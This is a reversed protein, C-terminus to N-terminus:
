KRRGLQQVLSRGLTRPTFKPRLRTTPIPRRKRRSPPFTRHLPNSIPTQRHIRPHGIEMSSPPSPYRPIRGALRNIRQPEIILMNDASSNSPHLSLHAHSIHSLHVPILRSCPLFPSFLVLFLSSVHSRKKKKALFMMALAALILGAVFAGVADQGTLTALCGVDQNTGAHFPGSSWSAGTSDFITTWFASGHTLRITYNMSNDASFTTNSTINVPPHM